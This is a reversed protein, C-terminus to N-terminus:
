AAKEEGSADERKWFFRAVGLVALALFLALFPSPGEGPFRTSTPDEPLYEIFVEEGRRFRELVEQPMGKKIRIRRNDATTFHIESSYSKSESITVFLKKKTTTTEKYQQIPEVLAKQAHAEFNRNEAFGKVGGISLLAVM